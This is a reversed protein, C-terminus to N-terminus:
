FVFILGVLKDHTAVISQCRETSNSITVVEWNAVIFSDYSYDNHKTTDSEEWIDHTIENFNDAVIFLFHTNNVFTTIKM